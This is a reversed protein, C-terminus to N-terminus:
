YDDDFDFGLLEEQIDCMHDCQDASTPIYTDEGDCYCQQGCDPCEHAM